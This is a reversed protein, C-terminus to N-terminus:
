IVIHVKIKITPTHVGTHVSTKGTHIGTHCTCSTYKFPLIPPPAEPVLTISTGHWDETLAILARSQLTM